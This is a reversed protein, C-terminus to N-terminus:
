YVPISCLLHAPCISLATSQYVLRDVLLALTHTHLALTTSQTHLALTTPFTLTSHQTNEPLWCFNGVPSIPYGNQRQSTTRENCSRLGGSHLPCCPASHSAPSIHPLSPQHARTADMGTTASVTSTSTLGRRQRTRRFCPLLMCSSSM